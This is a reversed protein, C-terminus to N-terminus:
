KSLKNLSGISVTVNESFIQKPCGLQNLFNQINKLCEDTDVAESFFLLIAEPSFYFFTPKQNHLQVLHSNQNATRSFNTNRPLIMQFKAKENIQSERLAAALRGDVKLLCDIDIFPYLWFLSSTRSIDQRNRVTKIEEDFHQEQIDPVLLNRGLKKLQNCDDTM